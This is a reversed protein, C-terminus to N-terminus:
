KKNLMLLGTGSGALAIGTILMFAGSGLVVQVLGISAVALYLYNELNMAQAYTLQIPNTPDYKKGGLLEGYTPAIGHRHERVTDAAKQAEDLSDIVDDANGGFSGMNIKETKMADIIIKQKAFGMYIFTAGMIFGIIGVIIILTGIYKIGKHM